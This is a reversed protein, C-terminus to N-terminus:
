LDDCTTLPRPFTPATTRRSHGAAAATGAGRRVAATGTVVTGPRPTTGRRPRARGPSRPPVPSRRTRRGPPAPPPPSPTHGARGPPPRRAVALPPPRDPCASSVPEASTADRGWSVRMEGTHAARQVTGQGRTGRSHRQTSRVRRAPAAREPPGARFAAPLPTASPPRRTDRCQPTRVLSDGMPTALPGDGRSPTGPPRPAPFGPSRCPVPRTGPVAGAPSHGPTPRVAAPCPPHRM